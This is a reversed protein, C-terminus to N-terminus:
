CFSHAFYLRLFYLMKNKAVVIKSKTVINKGDNKLKANYIILL